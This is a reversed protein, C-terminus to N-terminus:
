TQGKAILEAKDERLACDRHVISEKEFYIPVGQGIPEGCVRCLSAVQLRSVACDKHSCEDPCYEGPGNGLKPSLYWGM